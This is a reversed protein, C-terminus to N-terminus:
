RPSYFLTELEAYDFSVNQNQNNNNMHDDSTNFGQQSRMIDKWDFNQIEGPVDSHLLEYDAQVGTPDYFLFRRDHMAGLDYYHWIEYPWVGEPFRREVLTNPPGYQLYIRGRDTEYGKKNRTGYAKQVKEVEKLYTMWEAQPADSNRRAWFHYFYQQMLILDAVEMQNEITIREVGTAIPHLCQIHELMEERTTYDAVFSKDVDILELESSTPNEVYKNRFFSIAKSVVLENERNRVEIMVMYNGSRLESIDFTQLVPVVAASETRKLRGQNNAVQGDENLISCSLAFKEGKGFIDQTGYIEAYIILADLHSPFYTNVYPLINVGSKSLETNEKVASYAKVFTIDSIFPEKEDHAISFSQNLVEPASTAQNLDRLEIEFHYNGNVLKFRQMDMFDVITNASVAPSSVVIKRFDVIDAGKKIIVTTEVQAILTSDAQTAYSVSTGTFNLHTEVYPGEGPIHFVKYDFWAELQASSQFTAPLLCLLFLLFRRM